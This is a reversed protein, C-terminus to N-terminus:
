ARSITWTARDIAFTALPSSAVFPPVDWPM